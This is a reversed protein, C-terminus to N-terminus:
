DLFNDIFVQLSGKIDIIKAYEPYVIIKDTSFNKDLEKMEVELRDKIEPDSLLIGAFVIKDLSLMYSANLLTPSMIVIIKELLEPNKKIVEAGEKEDYDTSPGLLTEFSVLNELTKDRTIFTHGIESNRGFKDKLPKGDVFIASGLGPGYKILLFNSDEPNYLHHIHALCEVNNLFHTPINLENITRVLGSREETFQSLSVFGRITVGLGLIPPYKESLGQICSPLENEDLLRRATLLNGAFDTLSVFLSHKRVDLGLLSYKSANISLKEEQRGVKGQYFAGENKILGETLLPKISLTVAPNSLELEKALAKHSLSGKQFLVSIIKKQTQNLEM